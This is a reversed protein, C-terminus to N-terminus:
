GNKGKNQKIKGNEIPFDSDLDYREVFKAVIEPGDTIGFLLYADRWNVSNLIEVPLNQIESFDYYHADVFSYENLKPHNLLDLIRKRLVDDQELAKESSPRSIKKDWDNCREKFRELRESDM